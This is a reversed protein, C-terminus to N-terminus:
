VGTTVQYDYSFVNRIYKMLLSSKGVGKKNCM